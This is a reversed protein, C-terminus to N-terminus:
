GLPDQEMGTGSLTGTQHTPATPRTDDARTEFTDIRLRERRLSTEIRETTDIRRRHLDVRETVVTHKTVSVFERRLPLRIVWGSATREGQAEFPLSTPTM